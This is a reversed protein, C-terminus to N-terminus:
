RASECITYKREGGEAELWRQAAIDEVRKRRDAESMADRLGQRSGRGIDYMNVAAVAKLRPEIQVASLAFGGGGCIGIVGIRNREVLPHVGLFDVAASYDESWAEPSAISRPQGGSEGTFSADHAITIFGREAMTQVYLGSTQEKVGGFPHGVILAPHRLSRDADKPIYMDAVVEIGLRNIFFVKQHDVRDSKPFTKDWALTAQASVSVSSLSFAGVTAVGVSALKLLNRRDVDLSNQRDKLNEERHRDDV